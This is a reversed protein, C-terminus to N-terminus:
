PMCALTATAHHSRSVPGVQLACPKGCGRATCVSGTSKCPHRRGCHHHFLGHFPAKHGMHHIMDGCTFKCNPVLCRALCGKRYAGVGAAQATAMRVVDLEAGDADAPPRPLLVDDDCACIHEERLNQACKNKCNPATCRRPCAHFSAGCDHLVDQPRSAFAGHWHDAEACMRQCGEQSCPHPCMKSACLCGIRDLSLRMSHPTRACNNNCFPARCTGPCRKKGRDRQKRNESYIGGHRRCFSNSRWAQSYPLPPPFLLLFLLFLSPSSLWRVAERTTMLLDDYTRCVLPSFAPM